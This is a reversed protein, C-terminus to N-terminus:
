KVVFLNIGGISAGVVKARYAHRFGGSEFPEKHVLLKVRGAPIFTQSSVDVTEIKYDVIEKEPEIVNGLRQLASLPLHVPKSMPLVSKPILSPKPITSSSSSPPFRSPFRSPFKSPVISKPTSPLTSPEGDEEDFACCFAKSLALQAIDHIQGGQDSELLICVGSKNFHDQCAKRIGDLTVDTTPVTEIGSLRVHKMARGTAKPSVRRVKLYTTVKELIKGSKKKEAIKEKMKKLGDGLKKNAKNM